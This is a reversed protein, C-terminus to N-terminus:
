EYKHSRNNSPLEPRYNAPDNYWDVFEKTTLEGNMYAEHMESYKAEPLHGMDWVGKRSEGPTWNIVEGTNPDRVLGDPGKANEWVEEVVGKRFSPRSNTYPKTDAKSGSQYRFRNAVREGCSITNGFADYEYHNLVRDSVKDQAAAGNEKDEGRIIRSVSGQEDCVYHYYTKANESDSSILGLGRIYRILNGSYDKEAVVERDENYLFQVLRGNEEMEARLGEADYCNKQIDGEATVTSALRGFDDYAYRNRGDSLMNGQRDYSYTVTEQQTTMRTLQILRNCNDYHYNEQIGDASRGLRNGAADYSYNELGGQPYQVQVLQNNADYAYKTLGQRDAKSLRNGNGDYTYRNDCVISGGGLTTRITTLNKNLDYAYDTILDTGIRLSKINGDAYYEYAALCRGNEMVQSLMGNRNYAYGTSKGTLDRQSIKRGDLDYTYSMLTRGSARKERLLGGPYYSYEYKMGASIASSLQGMHDYQWSEMLGSQPATHETPEGYMNYRYREVRGDRDTHEYLRGERDYLFTEEAGAADRRAALRNICNYAYTVTNGNGDTAQTVNGALDYCYKETSGDPATVQEIRGWLDTVYATHRGNGDELGTINGAADYQYSQRSGGDTVVSTRRGALDYVLSAAGLEDGERVIEGYANYQMYHLTSGDPATIRTNRGQTDYTYRYGAASVGYEAQEQAGIYATLNGNLDYINSQRGGQEDQTCVLRGCVDYTYYLSHGDAYKVTILHGATDYVSCTTNDISGNKERHTETIKRDCLDYEMLIEDGNPNQIRVVNGNGDYSFLTPVYKRGSGAEDASDMVRVIRGTPSYFYHREQWLKETIKKRELTRQNRANYTYEQVAGQSDCVRILRNNHDYESHIVNVRGQESDITQEELYRKEEVCNDLKDYRFTTLHYGIRGGEDATVPKRVALVRGLLDYTYLTGVRSDDTDGLVYGKADIDKIMNGALDYVYRHEVINEANIVEVLRNMNDYRYTYGAGDDRVADYQEPLIRKCLNNCSDYKERLVGGDPYVTKIRNHNMDYQYMIGTSKGPEMDPTYERLLNGRFDHEYVYTGGDPRVVRNLNEWVDYEYINGTGDDARKDYGNPLIEKTINAAADYYYRTINGEEDCLMTRHGLSNYAYTKSGLEDQIEIMNGASDYKYRITDGQATIYETPYPLLRDYRYTETNGESDTVTLIRGHSDYTFTTTQWLTEDIRKRNCLLNGVADYENCTERGSNDWVRVPLGDDNYIYNKILGDPEQEESLLGNSNYVRFHENGRRDKKWILNKAEDYKRQEETGDPYLIRTALKESGYSYIINQGDSTTLFTNQRNADDYFAVYEEGGELEQRIVRGKRDYFNKSYWKGNLDTLKVLYGERTYEYTMRGGNPFDVQTLYDGQYTYRVVRGNSDKLQSLRGKEYQLMVQQGSATEIKVLKKDEYIFRTTNGHIDTIEVLNGTTDYSYSICQVMNKLVYGETTATLILSDDGSRQNVWADDILSFRELHLDPMQAVITDGSRVLSTEFEFRWKNGLIGGTNHYVSEYYRKLAYPELVDELSLDVYEAQLSGTIVNIPDDTTDCQNRRNESGDNNRPEGGEANNNDNGSPHESDSNNDNGSSHESDNNNHNGGSAAEGLQKITKGSSYVEKASGAIGAGTRAIQILKAIDNFGEIKFKGEAFLDKIQGHGIVIQDITKGGNYLLKVTHFVKSAEMFDNAKKIAKGAKVAKSGIKGAAAFDGVIPIASFLSLAAGCYDGRALSIVGNAIDCIPGIGPFFGAIDLTLQIGDLAMSWFDQYEEEVIKHTGQTYGLWNFANSGIYIDTDLVICSDGVQLTVVNLGYITIVADDFIDDSKIGAVANPLGSSASADESEVLGFMKRTEYFSLGKWTDEANKKFDRGFREAQTGAAQKFKEWSDMGGDALYKDYSEESRSNFKEKGNELQEVIQNNTEAVPYAGLQINSETTEVIIDSGSTITIGDEDDMIISIETDDGDDHKKRTDTLTLAKSAFRVMKDQSTLVKEEPTDYDTGTTNSRSSGLCVIKGNNEYYIYVKDGIDPMCYFSNSIASEYPVDVCNGSMDGADADFQVQITTGNVALVSGTLINSVFTKSVSAQQTPRVDNTKGIKVTNVLIGGQNWVRSERVTDRGIQDGPIVSLESCKYEDICFQYSAASDDGNLMVQRLEGINKESSLKEELVDTSFTQMLGTGIKIDTHSSRGNVYVQQGYQNAIRTIFTWDTEQQQYIVTGIAPNQNM